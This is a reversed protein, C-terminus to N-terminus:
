MVWPTTQSPTVQLLALSRTLFSREAEILAEKPADLLHRLGEQLPGSSAATEPTGEGEAAAAAASAPFARLIVEVQWLACFDSRCGQCCLFGERPPDLCCFTELIPGKLDSWTRM